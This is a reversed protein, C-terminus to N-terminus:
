AAAEEEIKDSQDSARVCVGVSTGNYRKLIASTGCGGGTRIGRGTNRPPTGWGILWAWAVGEPDAEIRFPTSLTACFMLLAGMVSGVAGQRDARRTGEDSLGVRCGKGAM